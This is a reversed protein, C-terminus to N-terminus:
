RKGRAAPKGAAPTKPPTAKAAPKKAPAPKTAAKAPAPKAAAKAPAAKAGSAGGALERVAALVQAAHGKASVKPFHRLVKGDRDIITTSRIIGTMPRGYLVKEGWAGYAALVSGDADSLLPFTLGFKDRFKCHSEISDKSVGLVVAGLAKLEPLADRFEQAEITCGPTNDRPYFYLVVVSGRLDDLALTGGDSSPLTFSPASQGADLTM